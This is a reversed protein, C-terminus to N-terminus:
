KKELFRHIGEELLKEKPIKLEKELKEISIGM